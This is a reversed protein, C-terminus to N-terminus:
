ETSTEERDEATRNPKIEEYKFSTLISKECIKAKKGMDIRHGQTSCNPKYMKTLVAM